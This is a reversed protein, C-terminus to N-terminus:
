LIRLLGMLCNACIKAPKIANKKAKRLLKSIPHKSKKSGIKRGILHMPSSENSHLINNVSDPSKESESAVRIESEIRSSSSHIERNLSNKGSHYSM